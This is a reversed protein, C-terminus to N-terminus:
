LEDDIQVRIQKGEFKAIESHYKKHEWVTNVDFVKYNQGLILLYFFSVQNQLMHWIETIGTTSSTRVLSSSDAGSPGASSFNTDVFM